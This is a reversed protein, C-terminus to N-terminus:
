KAYGAVKILEAVTMNHEAALQELRLKFSEERKKTQVAEYASTAAAIVSELTIHPKTEFMLTFRSMMRDHDSPESFVEVDVPNPSVQIGTINGEDDTGLRAINRVPVDLLELNFKYLNPSRSVFKQKGDDDLVGCPYSKSKAVCTALKYTEIPKGNVHVFRQQSNERFFETIKNMAITDPTKDGTQNNAWLRYGHPNVNKVATLMDYASVPKHLDLQNFVAYLVNNHHLVRYSTNFKLPNTFVTRNSM